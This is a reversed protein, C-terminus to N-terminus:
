GVERALNVAPRFGNFRNLHKLIVKAVLALAVTHILNQQVESNFEGKENSM